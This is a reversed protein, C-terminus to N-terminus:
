GREKHVLRGEALIAEVKVLDAPTDVDMTMRSSVVVRMRRGAELVRLQELGEMAELRGAELGSFEDLSIRRFGYVGVHRLFGARPEPRGELARRLDEIGEPGTTRHFPIPSRSFYLADGRADLVVKCTNPDLIEEISAFPEALTVYGLAPDEEIAAVMADLDEGNLLPEDGQINLVIEVPEGREELTRVAEQARDTGTRHEPSTMIVEGGFRSVAARIREDDTAILVRDLRRARAAREWVHQILPKKQLSALAKGPFRTSAYRAPIIGVAQPM